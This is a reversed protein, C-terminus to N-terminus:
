SVICNNKTFGESWCKSTGLGKTEPVTKTSSLLLFINSLKLVALAVHYVLEKTLM